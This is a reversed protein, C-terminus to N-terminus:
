QLQVWAAVSPVGQSSVIFLMYWGEPAANSGAGAPGPRDLPPTVKVTGPATVKFDLQVYRQDLDAHHTVSGPRMLVVRDVTVGAPLSYQLFFDLGYPIVQPPPPQPGPVWQPRLSTDCLYPPVFIEYDAIRHPEAGFPYGPEGGAVLVMGSPLLLATSHYAHDSFADALPQWSSGTWWEAQKVGSGPGFVVSEGGFAVFSADPLLVVNLGRRKHAMPPLTKWDYGQPSADFSGSATASAKCIQMSDHVTNQDQFGGVIVVADTYVADINPYLFAAGDGRSPLTRGRAFWHPRDVPGDRHDIVMGDPVWGSRFLMADSLLHLRPYVILPAWNPLDPPSHPVIPVTPGLFLRDAQGQNLWTKWTPQWFAEYDDGNPLSGGAALMRTFGSEANQVFIVSPYWRKEQMNPLPTWMGNGPPQTPDFIYAVTAGLLPNISSTGGAVLLRGDPLWSHGACAFSRQESGNPPITLEFNWFKDPDSNLAEPKIICWIQKGNPPFASNEEGDWVLVRGALPSPPPILAMHMARLKTGYTPHGYREWNAPAQYIPHDNEHQYPNTFTGVVCPDGIQARAHVGLALTAALVGLALIAALCTNSRM